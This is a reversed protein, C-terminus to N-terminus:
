CRDREWFSRKKKLRMLLEQPILGVVLPKVVYPLAGPMLGLASFGKWRVAAEDFRYRYKRRKRACHDELFLYLEEQQNAGRLGAAYMRILLDYDEARRTEKAIRYGQVRALAERRFMLSGHIFPMTFLFDRPEPYKPFVRRGWSGQEDWLTANTGVFAINPHRELFLLQKEFRDSSSLDDADQRAIWNGRAQAICRNLASALGENQASHILKIRSDLKALALLLSRTQKSSGDDCIIFEFDCMTQTLVSTVAQSFVDPTKINYVGMLVSLRPSQEACRIACGSGYMYM